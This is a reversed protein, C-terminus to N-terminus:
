KKYDIVRKILVAVEARTTYDLPAILNNKGNVLGVSALASVAERAYPSVTSYDPYQSLVEDVAMRRDGKEELLLSQSQLARHVIVMMDQRTIHNRPAFKNDGIGNVLGTNRAIALEAAFYDDASVDAFNETSDSELKFARVLLLAFDARTINNAPSFTTESTGRIIGDAALSNIAEKAWTHSELDTFRLTGNETGTNDTNGSDENNEENEGSAGNGTDNQTSDPAAGGGGGGGASSESSDTSPVDTNDNDPKGTTSGYVTVTFHITSERGDSDRATIAVHNDGVQSADPKWTFVGTEANVSAGRPLTTGIYSLTAGDVASEASITISVSSGASTSVVNDIPTIVPAYDEDFSMPITFSQEEKINYVYGSDANKIDRHGRILTVTGLNLRIMGDALGEAEDTASVIKYVANEIGDNEVFIYRGELDAIEECQMNVDIFNDSSLEKQFGHVTGSYEKVIEAEAGIMDGDHVYRYIVSGEENVSYVGVFGRFKFIEKGNDSVTYIENNDTAYVIYDTRKGDAYSVKVARVANGNSVAGSVQVPVIEGLYREGRYPEFVTTFLSDLEQNEDKRQVLVYDLTEPMGKNNSREPVPGAALAVEDPIFNNMQTMRLTINSGDKVAKRYDEVDFEIAFSESAPATDRRVNKMWTYGRPYRTEYSWADPQTDPDQGYPVDAGAYSGVIGEVVEDPAMDLNEVAYANEAQSHFSYTHANGGTVRFFDVGYSVDDDVKVMVVTRRFNDTQPNAKKADIDMLKVKDTVDYHLPTGHLMDGSQEAEDVTVTNHSLTTQVWQLRVPLTGTNEPYGLDPALNLGYAEFGLNLADRHAHSAKNRGFYIWFDRLNNNATQSNASRHNKGDRLVAFGYGTLMESVPEPNEDVIALIDVEAQEPNEEMISYHFGEASYGNKMYLYQAIPKAYPTGLLNLLGTLMMEDTGNYGLSATASSDGIQAHHSEALVVRTVADYMKAFKPHSYPSYDKEGKYMAMADAMGMMNNIWTFNYNPAAENGMGDRDIEDILQSALNGGDAGSNSITGSKYIWELMESSEPEKALSVAAAALAYQKQGFNGHIRGDKEMTFITKLIGEEWNGWIDQSSQKTNELGFKESKESLYRIVTSDTLAPYFADTGLAFFRAIDCDNIRGQIAGNGSGGHTNFFQKEYPKINFTAYVDAIRDLLIAGTRGYKIDGSYVYALSLNRMYTWTASWADYNYMAVYGHREEIDKGGVVYTRGPVYGFGDDVGWRTGDVEYYNGNEDKRYPDKNYKENGVTRLESYLDNYLYGGALGYGYFEYWTESYEKDPAECVCEEGNEVSECVFKEHHAQRARKVDFYGQKDRGLEYFSEFDNSPFLRKCDPCQVQWPRNVINIDWGTGGHKSINNVGCYRCRNYDPDNPAGVQRGRPVGEGPINNYYADLNDVIKDAAATYKKVEAEAWSYKQANRVANSRKDYTYFTPETKGNHLTVVIEKEALVSENRYEASATLKVTGEKEATIMGDHITVIGEPEATYMINEFSVPIENGSKKLVLLDILAKERVFMTGDHEIKYGITDTNDTATVTIEKKFTKVGDTASVTIVATGDGTARLRGENSVSVVNENSSTFTIEVEGEAFVYGDLRKAVVDISTEELYTLETKYGSLELTRLANESDMRFGLYNFTPKANGNADVPVMVLMYEGAKPAYVVGVPEITDVNNKTGSFDLTGIYDEATVPGNESPISNGIGLKAVDTFYFDARGGQVNSRKMMEFGYYGAKPLYVSYAFFSNGINAAEVASLTVGIYSEPTIAYYIQFQSANKNFISTWPTSIEPRIGSLKSPPTTLQGQTYNETGVVARGGIYYEYVTKDANVVAVTFEQSIGQYSVALKATGEAKATIKGNADIDAIDPTLSSFEPKADIVIGMNKVAADVALEEGVNIVDSSLKADLTISNKATLRFGLHNFGVRGNAMVTGADTPKIVLLYEGAEPAALNGVTAWDAENAGTFDLKGVLDDAEIVGNESPVTDSDSITAMPAFYIDAKNGAYKRRRVDLQYVGAKPVYVSYAFFSDNTKDSSNVYADMVGYYYPKADTPDACYLTAATNKGCIYKWPMSATVDIDSYNEPMAGKSGQTKESNSPLVRGGIIYEYAEKEADVVAVSFEKVTQGVTATFKAVGAKKTTIKGNASIEAIESTLSAFVPVDETEVGGNTVTVDADASEGANIVGYGVSVDVSPKYTTDLVFSDVSFVYLYKGNSQLNDSAKYNEGVGHPAVVLYYKGAEIYKYKLATTKIARKTAHGEAYGLYYEDSLNKINQSLTSTTTFDIGASTPVLFIRANVSTKQEIHKLIASYYGSNEVKIKFVFGGDGQEPEKFTETGYWNYCKEYNYSTNNNAALATLYAWPASGHAATNEYTANATTIKNSGDIATSLFSYTVASSEAAIASPVFSIIMAIVLVTSILRKM